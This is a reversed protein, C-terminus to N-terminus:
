VAKAQGHLVEVKLWARLTAVEKREILFDHWNNGDYINGDHITVHLDGDPYFEFDIWNRSSHKFTLEKM